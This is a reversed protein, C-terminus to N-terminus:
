GDVSEEAPAPRPPNALAHGTAENLLEMLLRALAWADDDVRTRGHDVVCLDRGEVDVITAADNESLGFPPQLGHARLRARLDAAATM